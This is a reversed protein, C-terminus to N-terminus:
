RRTQNGMRNVGTVLQCPTESRAARCPRRHPQRATRGAPSAASENDRSTARLGQRLALAFRSLNGTGSQDRQNEPLVHPVKEAWARSRRDEFQCLGRGYGRKGSPHRGTASSAGVRRCRNRPPWRGREIPAIRPFPHPPIGDPGSRFPSLGGGLKGGFRGCRWRDQAQSRGGADAAEAGDHLHLGTGHLDDDGDQVPGADSQLFRDDRLRM